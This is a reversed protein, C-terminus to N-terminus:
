LRLFIRKRYLPYVLAANLLVVFLAVALSAARPSLSTALFTRDLAMSLSLAQGAIPFRPIEFLAILLQSLAYAFIANTGFILFLTWGRRIRLVDLLLFFLALCLLSLGASWCAFSPTYIQKNLPMWRALVLSLLWLGTGMSALLRVQLVRRSRDTGGRLLEGAILGCMTTGLAGLTSLVGEPDFTIGVGPTQIGYQFLHPLTFLTRDLVAPLTGLPDLRGPGFHPTPYFTLLLWYTALSGAGLLGLLAIRMGRPVVFRRLALYLLALPLYLLGIRQLVGPIRYTAFQFFPFGNVLLGLLILWLSRRAAHAALAGISAGQELRASFSLVLSAGMVLLFCPFILDAATPGDWLAHRLQPYMATYTGPNTVLIMAAVTLGRLVDLSLLRESAAMNKRSVSQVEKFLVFSKRCYDTSPPCTEPEPRVNRSGLRASRRVISSISTAPRGCSRSPLCANHLTANHAGGHRYQFQQQLGTFTHDGLGPLQAPHGLGDGHVRVCLKPATPAKQTRDLAKRAATRQKHGLVLRLAVLALHRKGGLDWAVDQGKLDARPMLVHNM